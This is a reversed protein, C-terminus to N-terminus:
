DRNVLGAFTSAARCDAISSRWAASGVDSLKDSVFDHLRVRIASPFYEVADYDIKVM